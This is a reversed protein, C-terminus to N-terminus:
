RNISGSIRFVVFILLFKERGQCLSADSEALSIQNGTAYGASFTMSIWNYGSNGLIRVIERLYDRSFNRLILKKEQM